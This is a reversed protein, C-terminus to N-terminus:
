SFIFDLTLIANSISVDTDYLTFTLKDDVENKDSVKPNMIINIIASTQEEKLIDMIDM